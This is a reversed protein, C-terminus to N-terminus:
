ARPKPVITGMGGDLAIVQGTMWSGKDSVLWAALSAVEDANGIRGVPHMRESIRRAQENSTLASTAPTEVLGPAIANARIGNSSYTASISRVLGEVGGKAAAIAEHNSLGAQAAVSSFLVIVGHKQKRMINVAAKSAYFASHLNTSLVAEWDSTSLMHLPKLSVSGIAHIYADVGGVEGSFEKFAQEVAESDTADASYLKLHPHNETFESWKDSPRGFGGVTWNESSLVNAVASGIGGSIGGIFVRKTESPSTM